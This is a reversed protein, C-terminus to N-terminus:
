ALQFLLVVAVKPCLSAVLFFITFFAAGFFAAADADPALAWPLDTLVLAEAVFAFAEGFVLVAAFDFIVALVFAAEFGFAAALGFAAAFAFVPALALGAALAFPAALAVAAATFFLAAERFFIM